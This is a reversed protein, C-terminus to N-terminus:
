QGDEVAEVRGAAPEPTKSKSGFSAADFLPRGDMHGPIEVGFLSLASPAIDVISPSQTNIPHNSFFV